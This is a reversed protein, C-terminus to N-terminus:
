RFSHPNFYPLGARTFAERFIARIPTTNSWHKRDLGAAEFQRGAGVVVRKAPFVPDDPGWLKDKMLYGVWDVVIQRVHDGVPFFSPPSPNASSRACKEHM